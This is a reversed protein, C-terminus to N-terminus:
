AHHLPAVPLAHAARPKRDGRPAHVRHGPGPRRGVGARMVRTDRDAELAHRFRRHPEPARSSGFTDCDGERPYDYSLRTNRMANFFMRCSRTRMAAASRPMTKATTSTINWNPRRESKRRFALAMM